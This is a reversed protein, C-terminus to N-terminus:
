PTEQRVKYAPAPPTITPRSEEHDATQLARELRRRARHLRVAMTSSSCGMALAAEAVDLEEWGVLRLAEQDAPTLRALARELRACELVARDTDPAFEALRQHGLKATVRAARRQSRDANALVNRAVAYLWPTAQAHDAPVTDLRRWAVLFTEAVADRATEPDTRRLAYRLVTQYQAQYLENFRDVRDM